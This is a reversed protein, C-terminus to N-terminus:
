PIAPTYGGSIGRGIGVHALNYLLKHVHLDCPIVLQCGVYLLKNTLTAGEISGMSIDKTLQKAFNDTEYGTTIADLLSQNSAINLMGAMPPNPANHTYAIACAALCADPIANPMQSLANAATNLEGRIYTISYNFDVLYMSWGM